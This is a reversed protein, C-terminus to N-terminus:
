GYRIHIVEKKFQIIYLRLSHKKALSIMNKTGTSKGNHFAILVGLEIDEKAYLAMELNRNHGALANYPKNYKNYKVVCPQKELNDWDPIFRKIKLGFTNAFKEGLSDAGRAGGSVIEVVNKSTDFGESKLERFINLCHKELLKYDNFERSGAIIVRIIIM